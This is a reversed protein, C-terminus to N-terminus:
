YPGESGVQLGVDGGLHGESGIQLRGSEGPPELGPRVAGQRGGEEGWCHRLGLQQWCSAAAASAGQGVGQCCHSLSRARCGQGQGHGTPPMALISGTPTPPLIHPAWQLSPAGWGEASGRAMQLGALLVQCLLSHWVAVEDMLTTVGNPITVLLKPVAAM